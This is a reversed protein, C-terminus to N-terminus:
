FVTWKNTYLKSVRGSASNGSVAVDLYGDQDVDVFEIDGGIVKTFNENNNTFGGEGNNKYVNTITGTSADGMLALDM